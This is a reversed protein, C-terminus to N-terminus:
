PGPRAGGPTELKPGRQKLHICRYFVINVARTRKHTSQNVFLYKQNQFLLRLTTTELILGKQPWQMTLDFVPGFQSNPTFSDLCCFYFFSILLSNSYWGGGDEM